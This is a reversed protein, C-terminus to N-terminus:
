SDLLKRKQQQFETETLAGADRLKALRELATIVDGDGGGDAPVAPQGGSMGAKEAKHQAVVGMIQAALMPDGSVDLQETSGPELKRGLVAELKARLEPDNRADVTETTQSVVQANGLGGLMAGLGGGSMPDQVAAGGAAGPSGVAPMQSMAERRAAKEGSREERAAEWDIAVREPEDPDVKVPVEIGFGLTDDRSVIWQDEVEYPSLGEVFVQLTMPINQKSAGREPMAFAVIRARGPKGKKLIKRHTFPNIM